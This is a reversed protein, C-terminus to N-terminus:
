GQPLAAIRRLTTLKMDYADALQQVFFSSEPSAALASRARAIADDIMRLNADIVQLTADDVAPPREALIARLEAIEGEYADSVRRVQGGPTEAFGAAIQPDGYVGSPYNQRAITWTTGATVAVLVAAAAFMRRPTWGSMRAHTPFQFAPQDIRSAIGDWLDRSPNLAPLDAAEDRIRTLDALLGGCRDCAEAHSEATDRDRAGLTGELLDPLLRDFDGCDFAHTSM